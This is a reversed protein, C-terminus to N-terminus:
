LLFVAPQVVEVLILKYIEYKLITMQCTELVFEARVAINVKITECTDRRGSIGGRNM